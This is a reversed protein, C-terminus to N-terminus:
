RAATSRAPQAAGGGQVLVHAREIESRFSEPLAAWDHVHVLIPLDSEAFAERLAAMQKQPRALAGESRLVQRKYV